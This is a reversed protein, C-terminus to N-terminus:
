HMLQTQSNKRTTRKKRKKVWFDPYFLVTPTMPYKKNMIGKKIIKTSRYFLM